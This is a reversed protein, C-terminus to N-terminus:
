KKIYGTVLIDEGIRKTAINELEIAECLRSVGEGGIVCKSDGGIIKPSIFFMIKDVLRNELLSANIEAGGEVLISTIERKGLREMLDELDVRGKKDEVRLVRVGKKKFADVKSPSALKTTVIITEAEGDFVRSEIPVTCKSDVVVRIPNKRGESHITLCPNDRIVTEKGVLVADFQSRLRHVFRRSEECTIWKSEGFRTAIKGDITMGAKISVFPRKTTIYKLYVENLLSAKEKLVGIEVEIGADKLEKIGSVKPNPDLLGVVVRKIGHEIIKKTCPPTRGFHSCPELNVYLTSGSADKEAKKLAIVEAHPEGVKKHYGRGIIKRDKVVIAGVMPNPSTKGLGRKALRLCLDMYKEDIERNM